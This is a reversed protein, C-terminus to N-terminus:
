LHPGSSLYLHGGRVARLIEQESLDEAYVVDFGYPETRKGNGHNDTGSTLVMRYGRNLWGFALPLADENNDSPNSWPENWVEVARANGPMMTEYVWRCGSCDPDGVARPHAIIFVGGRAQVESAIQEMTREGASTRWDVWERLGLAL